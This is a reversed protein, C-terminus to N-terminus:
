WLFHRKFTTEITMSETFSDISVCSTTVLLIGIIVNIVNLLVHLYMNNKKLCLFCTDVNNIAELAVFYTPPCFAKLCFIICKYNKLKRSLINAIKTM